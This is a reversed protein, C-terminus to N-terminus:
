AMRWIGARAASLTVPTNIDGIWRFRVIDGASLFRCQFVGLGGTITTSAITQGKATGVIGNVDLAYGPRVLGSGSTIQAAITVMYFGSQQVQFRSLALQVLDGSASNDIEQSNFVIVNDTITSVQTTTNLMVGVDPSILLDDALVAIDEVAADVAVALDRLDAIDAADKTLPPDCEPCPLMYPYTQRTM